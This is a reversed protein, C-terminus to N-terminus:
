DWHSGRYLAGPVRFGLGKVAQFRHETGENSASVSRVSSWCIWMRVSSDCPPEWSSTTGKLARLKPMM